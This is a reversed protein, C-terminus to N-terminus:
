PHHHTRVKLLAAFFPILPGERAPTSHFARSRHFPNPRAKTTLICLHTSAPSTFSLCQSAHLTSRISSRHVITSSNRGILHRLMTCHVDNVVVVRLRYLDFLKIPEAAEHDCTGSDSDFYSNNVVALLNM